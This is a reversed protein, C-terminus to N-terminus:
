VLLLALPPVGCSTVDVVPPAEGLGDRLEVPECVGDDAEDDAVRPAVVAVAVVVEEVLEGTALEEVGEEVLDSAVLLV